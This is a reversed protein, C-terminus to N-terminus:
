LNIEEWREFMLKVAAIDEKGDSYAFEERIDMLANFKEQDVVEAAAELHSWLRDYWHEGFEM